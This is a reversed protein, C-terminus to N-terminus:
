ESATFAAAALYCASGEADLMRTQMGHRCMNTYQSGVRGVYDVGGVERVWVVLGLRSLKVSEDDREFAAAQGCVIRCCAYPPNAIVESLTNLSGLAQLKTMFDPVHKPITAFCTQLNATQTCRVAVPFVDGHARFFM